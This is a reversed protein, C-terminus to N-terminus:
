IYEGLTEYIFQGDKPWVFDEQYNRYKLVLRFKYSENPELDDVCFILRNKMKFQKSVAQWQNLRSITVELTCNVIDEEDWIWSLNMSQANVGILTLNRPEPYMRLLHEESQSYSDTLNEPYARVHIAYEKGPLMDRLLTSVEYLEVDKEDEAWVVKYRLFEANWSKPSMWSIMAMTPTLAQVQVNQPESPVGAGTRITVEPNDDFEQDGYYNALSLRFRYETFAELDSVEFDRWYTHFRLRRENANAVDITYLTAPLGYKECGLYPTPEPLKVSISTSTKSVLQVIYATRQPIMCDPDPYPQLSKGIARISRASSMPYEKIIAQESSLKSKDTFYIKGTELNSWYINSKDTTLSAPPLGYNDEAKLVINCVCGEMDTIILEGAANVYYIVPNQPDSNDITFVPQITPRFPCTCDETHNFFPQINNGSLDSQM